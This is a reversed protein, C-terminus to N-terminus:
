ASDAISFQDVKRATFSSTSKTNPEGSYYYGQATQDLITAIVTGFERQGQYTLEIGFYLTGDDDIKWLGGSWRSEMERTNINRSYGVIKVQGGAGSDYTIEFQEIHDGDENEISHRGRRSKQNVHSKGEYRGLFSPSESLRLGYDKTAPSPLHAQQKSLRLQARAVNVQWYAIVVTIVSFLISVIISLHDM